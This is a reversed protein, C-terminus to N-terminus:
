RRQTNGVVVTSLSLWSVGVFGLIVGTKELLLLTSHYYETYLWGGARADGELAHTLEYRVDQQGGLRM